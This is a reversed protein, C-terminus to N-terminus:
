AAGGGAPSPRMKPLAEAGNVDLIRTKEAETLLPSSTVFGVAEALPGRPLDSGFVLRDVGLSQRVSELAYPEELMSTDYWCRRLQGLVGGIEEYLDPHSRRMGTDFRRAFFPLSGGMAAAIIGVEPYRHTVQGAVLRCIALATEAPSCFDPALHFEAAGVGMRPTTGPHIFVTAHREDLAAWM